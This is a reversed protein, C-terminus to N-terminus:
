FYLNVNVKVLRPLGRNIQVGTGLGIDQRANAYDEDTLNDGSIAVDWRGSEPTFSLKASLLGYGDEELTNGPDFYFDSQYSYLAFWSLNGGALPMDYKASVAYSNEPAYNLTNDKLPGETYEGDIYSYNANLLLNASPMYSWDLEIGRVEAEAANDILIGGITATAVQLDEYDSFYLAANLRMSGDLMETKAGIEYSTNEEPDFDAVADGVFDGDFDAAAPNFGGAKYGRTVSAYMMADDSLAYDVVLRPSFNTWSESGCLEGVTPVSVFFLAAEGQVCWDKEDKTWRGGATLSLADTASWRVDGYVGLATNDGETTNRDQALVGLGLATDILDLGITEDLEEDFYNVGLFWALSDTTGSLRLEQAFTKGKTDTNSYQLTAGGTGVALIADIVADANSGDVDQLYDYDYSRADTISTLTVSDSLDWILRLSAGETDNEERNRTSSAIKDPFEEGPEVTSLQPNYVGGMNTEQTGYNLTLLAEFTDSPTFRGSLRFSDEERFGEEGIAVDDWVGELRTGHYALRLAANDSVALNGVVDYEEQGEDGAGVGLRLSNEDAPKNTTMIIAGAAANRGFLTGQPGNVAEIRELDFFAGTALANRGVYAEDIYIAVSPESGTSWDNTSIGRIAWANTSIGATSGTVGPLMPLVQTLNDVGTDAILEESMASIAVPVDQVSEARKQATVVVEELQAAAPLSQALLVAALTALEPRLHKNSRAM